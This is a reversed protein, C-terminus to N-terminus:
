VFVKWLYASPNLHQKHLIMSGLLTSKSSTSKVINLFLSKQPPVILKLMLTVSFPEMVWQTTNGIGLLLQQM